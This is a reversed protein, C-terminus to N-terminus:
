DRAATAPASAASAGARDVTDVPTEADIVQPGAGATGAAGTGRGGQRKARLERIDKGILIFTGGVGILAFAFWQVAYSMHPGETLEPLPVPVFAGEQGPTMSTANVYGDQLPLDAWAAISDVNIVRVTGEAPTRASNPGSESAMTYGEVEVTGTPPAPIQEPTPTSGDAERAAFGRNVLVWAGETTEMPVVMEYGPLGEATRARVQLAHEPHFTGTVTVRRFEDEESVGGAFVESAAVPPAQQQAVVLENEAVKQEHRDLQWEGLYIFAAVLVVAFVALGVWRKWYSGM